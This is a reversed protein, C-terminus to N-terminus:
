VGIVREMVEWVGMDLIRDKFSLTKYLICALWMRSPFYDPQTTSLAIPTQCSRVVTLDVETKERPSYSRHRERPIERIKQDNDGTLPVGESGSGNNM